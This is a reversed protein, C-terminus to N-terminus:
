VGVKCFARLLVSQAKSNLVDLLTNQPVRLAERLSLPERPLQYM